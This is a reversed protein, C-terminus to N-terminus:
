GTVGGNQTAYNPDSPASAKVEEALRCLLNHMPVCEEVHMGRSAARIFFLRIVAFDDTTFTLNM